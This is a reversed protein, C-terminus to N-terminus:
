ASTAAAAPADDGLHEASPVPLGLDRYLAFTRSLVIEQAFHDLVRQRGAAAMRQRKQPSELLAALAAALAVADKAPVLLGNDGHHVIERCGPVDTTVIARGSAAAELLSRPLGERYSPLCVLTCQRYVAAVDEAYGWHEVVGDALWATLTAQPVANPNGFDSGGVLAFRAPLGRDKLIRAAAVFEAVGKEWILRAVLVVIPTGAPEPSTRFAEVDVGSGRIVVARTPGLVAAQQLVAMDDPNEFTAASRPHRFALRYGHRVAGRMIRARMGEAVFVHGLGTIKSVVVPVSTLRAAWRGYLTPKITFTHVLLPRHLRFLTVLACFTRLEGFPSTGRPSLPICALEIGAARLKADFDGTSGGVAIVRWGARRLADILPRRFVWLTWTCRSVILAM